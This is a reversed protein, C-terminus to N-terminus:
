GRTELLHARGASGDVAALTLGGGQALRLPCAAVGPVGLSRAVEFLHAEPSGAFTVLGAAHWLLPALGPVPYPAAVVDRPRFTSLDEVGQVVCLRGAGVGGSAA